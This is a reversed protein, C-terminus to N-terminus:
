SPRSNMLVIQLDGVNTGTPGTRILDDLAGFFAYADNERLVKEIHPLGRATARSLSREDAVAGAADTPGDVGDTGISVLVVGPQVSALAPVAALALEQNRGGRGKGTVHVTTEGTSIVCVREGERSMGRARAVIAPGALRAEGLTPEDIVVVSYGLRLATEHAGRMADRRSGIVFGTANALRQDGAKPTEPIKGALGRSLHERVGGPVEEWIAHDRLARVADQYTSSDPVGPGSGIVSLDDEARGIVDSIALTCSAGAGAALWGGKVASLHKRVANMEEIPLGHSLMLKVAQIKADLSIGTAPLALMASAGGSILLVLCAGEHVQAALELARTATRCSEETPTPHPGVAFLRDRIPAIGVAGFGALM